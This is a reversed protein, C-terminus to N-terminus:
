LARGMVVLDCSVIDVSRLACGVIEVFYLECRLSLNSHVRFDCLYLLECFVSIELLLTPCLAVLVWLPSPASLNAASWKNSVGRAPLSQVLTM